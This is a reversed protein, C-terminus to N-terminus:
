AENSPNRLYFLKKKRIEYNKDTSYSNTNKLRNM